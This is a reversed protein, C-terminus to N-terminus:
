FGAPPIRLPSEILRRIWLHIESGRKLACTCVIGAGDIVQVFSRNGFSSARLEHAHSIFTGLPLTASHNFAGSEFDPTTALSDPTRIGGRGGNALGCDPGPVAFIFCGEIQPPWGITKESFGTKIRDVQGSPQRPTLAGMWRGASRHCSISCKGPSKGAASTTLPRKRRPIM